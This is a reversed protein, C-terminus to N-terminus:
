VLDFQFPQWCCFYFDKKKESRRPIFGKRAECFLELDYTNDDDAFYFVGSGGVDERMLRHLARNRNAVGRPLAKASRYEEPM